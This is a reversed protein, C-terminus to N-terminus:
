TRVHQYLDELVHTGTFVSISMFMTILMFMFLIHVRVCVLVNAHVHVIVHLVPAGSKKIIHEVYNKILEGRYESHVV